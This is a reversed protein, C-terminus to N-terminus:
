TAKEHQFEGRNMLRWQCRECRRGRLFIGQSDYDRTMVQKEDKQQSSQVTKHLRIEARALDLQINGYMQFRTTRERDNRTSNHQEQQLEYSNAEEKM